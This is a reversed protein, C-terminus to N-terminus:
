EDKIGLKECWGLFQRKATRPTWPYIKISDLRRDTFTEITFGLEKWIGKWDFVLKKAELCLFENDLDCIDQSIIPSLQYRKKIVHDISRFITNGSLLAKLPRSIDGIYAEEADHMLIDRLLFVRQGLKETWYAYETMLCCHQAVSYFEKVHGNFRCINSLAHAIDELCIQKSLPNELDVQLGTFTTIWYTM